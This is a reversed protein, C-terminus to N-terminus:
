IVQAHLAAGYAMAADDLKQGSQSNTIILLQKGSQSVHCLRPRLTGFSEVHLAESITQQIVPM